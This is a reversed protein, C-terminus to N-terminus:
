NLEIAGMNWLALEYKLYAKYYKKWNKYEDEPINRRVNDMISMMTAFFQEEMSGDENGVFVLSTKHNGTMKPVPCFLFGRDEKEMLEMIGKIIRENSKDDFKESIKKVEQREKLHYVIIKSCTLEYTLVKTKGFQLYRLALKLHRTM